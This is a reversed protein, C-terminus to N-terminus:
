RRIPELITRGPRSSDLALLCVFVKANRLNKYKWCLQSAFMVVKSQTFGEKCLSQLALFHDDIMQM